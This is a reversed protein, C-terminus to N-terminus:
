HLFGDSVVWVCTLNMVLPADEAVDVVAIVVAALRLSEERSERIWIDKPARRCTRLFSDGGYRSIYM